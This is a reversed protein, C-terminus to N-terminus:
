EGYGRSSPWADVASVLRAHLLSLRVDSPNTKTKCKESYFLRDWGYVTTEQDSGANTGAKQRKLGKLVDIEQV